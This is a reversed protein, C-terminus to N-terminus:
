REMLHGSSSRDRHASHRRFDAVGEGHRRDPTISPPSGIIRRTTECASGRAAHSQHVLGLCRGRVKPTSDHDPNAECACQSHTAAVRLGLAATPDAGADARLSRGMQATRLERQQQSLRRRAPATIRAPPLLRGAVCHSTRQRASNTTESGRSTTPLSSRPLLIVDPGCELRPSCM